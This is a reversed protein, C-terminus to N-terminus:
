PQAFTFELEPVHFHVDVFQQFFNLGLLGGVGSREALGSIGVELDPLPQRNLFAGRLLYRDPRQPLTTLCGLTLLSNRTTVSLASTPTLTSVAMEVSRAWRSPDIELELMLWGFRPHQWAHATFQSFSAM